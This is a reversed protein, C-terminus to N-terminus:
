GITSIVSVNKFRGIPKGPFRHFIMTCLSFGNRVPSFSVCQLWGVYLTKRLVPAILDPRIQRCLQLSASGKIAYPRVPGVNCTGPISVPDEPLRVPFGGSWVTGSRRGHRGQMHNGTGVTAALGSQCTHISEPLQARNVGVFNQVVHYGACRRLCGPLRQTQSLHRQNCPLRVQHFGSEGTQPHQSVHLVRPSLTVPNDEVINGDIGRFLRKVSNAAAYRETTM